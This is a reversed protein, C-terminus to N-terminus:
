SLVTLRSIRLAQAVSTAGNNLADAVAEARADSRHWSVVRGGADHDTVVPRGALGNAGTQVRAASYRAPVLRETTYYDTLWDDCVVAYIAGQGHESHHSYTAPHRKGCQDCIVFMGTQATDITM